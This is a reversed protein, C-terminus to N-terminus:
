GAVNMLHRERLYRIDLPDLGLATEAPTARRVALEVSRRGGALRERLGALAPAIRAVTEARTVLLRLSLQGRTLALDARLPGLKSLELGLSLRFPQEDDAASAADGERRPPVALRATTWGEGDPFPFSLVLPEGARERALNLLQEAELGALARGLAERLEGHAGPEALAAHARLLLAKLDGRLRELEERGGRADALRALASEHGLGLTALLTRLAGADGDPHAVLAELAQALSRVEPPLQAREPAGRLGRALEGLLEGLPREEGVVSRLASLLSEEEDGAPAVIKLVVGDLGEEVRVLLRAGPDLRLDSEAPIVHRGIALLLTGEGGPSLVEAALVRGDRLLAAAESTVTGTPRVVAGAGSSAIPEM